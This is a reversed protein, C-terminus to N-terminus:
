KSIILSEKITVLKGDACVTYFGNPLRKTEISLVNEEVIFSVANTVDRGDISFVSINDLKLQSVESVVINVHDKAPIPYVNIKQKSINNRNVPIWDTYVYTGDYDVQKLRYFLVEGKIQSVEDLISYSILQNTNGNGKIQAIKEVENNENTHREVDFYDNNIETATIWNVTVEDEKTMRADFKLLTVPVPACTKTDTISYFTSPSNQNNYETKIWNENLASTSVRLEDLYGCFWRSSSLRKGILLNGTTSNLNGTATQSAVLSGNVYTKKQATSLSGDYVFTVYTWVNNPITGQDHRYHGSGTTVRTNVNNSSAAGDIGLMYQESNDYIGKVLFPSDDGNPVPGKVWGSLTIKNGTINVSSSQAVNIYSSYGNFFRGDGIKGSASTSNYNTGNNGNSTGDNLNNFHYVAKYDNNFAATSSPDTTISANGYLMYIVTNSSANLVDVNVWVKFTGTSSNYSEIQFPLPQGNANTFAIDYGLSSQLDGFAKFSNSSIDILVPFNTFNTTGCVKSGNITIKKAGCYKSTDFTSCTANWSGLVSGNIYSDGNSSPSELKVTYSTINGPVNDLRLSPITLSQGQDYTSLTVSTTQNGASLTFTATRTDNNMEAIPINVEVTKTESTSPLTTSVSKSNQYIYYNNNFDVAQNFGGCESSKRYVYAVFSHMYCTNNNVKLKIITDANLRQRYLGKYSKNTYNNLAIANSSTQAINQSNTIFNLSTPQYGKYVAEVIIYDIEMLPMDINLTTYTNCAAGKGVIEICKKGLPVCQSEEYTVVTSNNLYSDGNSSPSELTLQIQTVNGPVDSLELEQITLSEGLDFTNITKSITQSGATLTLIAIRSDNTMETIPIAVKINKKKTTTPITTFVNKTCRYIYYRESGIISKAEGCASSKKVIYAVFSWMTNSNNFVNLTVSSAPNLKARYYGVQQSGCKGNPQITDTTGLNITQSNTKFQISTPFAGGSKYTAEVEIYSIDAISTTINLTKTSSGSTGTGIVDICQSQALTAIMLILSVLVVRLPRIPFEILTPYPFKM